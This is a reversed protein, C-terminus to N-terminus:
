SVTIYITTCKKDLFLCTLCYSLKLLFVKRYIVSHFTIENLRLTKLHSMELKCIFKFSCYISHLIFIVYIGHKNCMVWPSKVTFLTLQVDVNLCIVSVTSM